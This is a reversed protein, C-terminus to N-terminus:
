DIDLMYGYGRLNCVLGGCDGLRKRLRMVLTNIELDAANPVGTEDRAREPWVAERIDANSVARARNLYLVRFLAYLNGSLRIVSGRVVIERRADDLAVETGAKKGGLGLTRSDQEILFFLVAAEGALSLCDGRRLAAPLGERLAEGNLSTGNKSGQEVAVYGGDKPEIVLHRRSIFANDFAIGPSTDASPRGVLIPAGGLAVRARAPYPEGREILIFARGAAESEDSKM